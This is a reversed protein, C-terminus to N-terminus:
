EDRLADVPNIRSIRRAPISVGITVVVLLILWVLLSVLLFHWGFHNILYDPSLDGSNWVGHYLGSKWAFNLYILCGVFTAVTTLLWGEGILMRMIHRPNAGFSLMIGVEESRSRTQMWFTGAVGLCLNVLFFLGLILNLRYKNTVGRTFEHTSRITSYPEVKRAYLNGAKLEKVMWPRFQYLFEKVSTGEKVRFLIRAKNPILEAKVAKEPFLSVPMPQWGSMMRFPKVVGTISSKISDDKLLSRNRLPADGWGSNATLVFDDPNFTMEDLQAAKMGEAGELGMTKFFDSREVFHMVFADLVMSDLELMYTSMSPSYPFLNELLPATSIVRDYSRVRQLIREFNVPLHVSDSEESRYSSSKETLEGLTIMYLNDSRFGEPLSRNHTLVIVPDAVVWTVVTVLILEALLWGNQRRRAWLNKFILRIM